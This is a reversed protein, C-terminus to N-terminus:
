KKRLEEVYFSVAEIEGPTLYKKFAPMTLKGERIRTKITEPSLKIKLLNKAGSKQATGNKGHCAVCYEMYLYKGHRLKQYNPKAPNFHKEELKKAGYLGKLDQKFILSRTQSILFVYIFILLTILALTKIKKRFAIIGTPIIAIILILKIYYWGHNTIGSHIWLYIGTILFLTAIAMEAIKTKARFKELAQYRNFFLLFAKILLLLFYLSVLFTHSHLIGTYM